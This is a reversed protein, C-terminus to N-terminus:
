LPQYVMFGFWVIPPWREVRLRPGHRAPLKLPATRRDFPLAPTGLRAWRPRFGRTSCFPLLESSRSKWYSFPGRFRPGDIRESRLAGNRRSTDSFNGCPYSSLPPWTNTAVDTKLSGPSRSQVFKTYINLHRNPSQTELLFLVYTPGVVVIIELRKVICKIHIYILIHTHTHSNLIFFITKFVFNFNFSYLVKSLCM